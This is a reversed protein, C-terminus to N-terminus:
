LHLDSVLDHHVGAMDQGQVADQLLPVHHEILCRERPFGDGHGLPRAGGDVRTAHYLLAAADQAHGM